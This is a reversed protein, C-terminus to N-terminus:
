QGQCTESQEPVPRKTALLTGERGKPLMEPAKEHEVLDIKRFSVQVIYHLWATLM